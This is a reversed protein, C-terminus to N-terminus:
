VTFCKPTSVNKPRRAMCDTPWFFKWQDFRRMIMFTFPRLLASPDIYVYM